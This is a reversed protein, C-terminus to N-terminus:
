ILWTGSKTGVLVVAVLGNPSRWRYQDPAGRSVRLRVNREAGMHSICYMGGGRAQQDCDDKGCAKVKRTRRTAM